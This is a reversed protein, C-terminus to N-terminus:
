RPDAFSQLFAVSLWDKHERGTRIEYINSLNVSFHVRHNCSVRQNWLNWGSGPKKKPVNGTQFIWMIIKNVVRPNVARLSQLWRDCLGVCLWCTLQHLSSWRGTRCLVVVLTSRRQPCVCCGVTLHHIKTEWGKTFLCSLGFPDFFWLKQHSCSSKKIKLVSLNELM